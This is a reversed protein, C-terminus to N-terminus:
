AQFDASTGTPSARDNYHRINVIRSQGALPGYGNGARVFCSNSVGNIRIPGVGIRGKAGVARFQVPPPGSPAPMPLSFLPYDAFSLEDREFNPRARQLALVRDNMRVSGATDGFQIVSSASVSNIVMSGVATFRGGTRM